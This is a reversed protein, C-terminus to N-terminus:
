EVFVDNMSFKMNVNESIEVNGNFPICSLLYHVKTFM